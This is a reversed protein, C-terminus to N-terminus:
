WPVPFGKPLDKIKMAKKKCKKSEADCVAKYLKNWKATIHVGAGTPVTSGKFHPNKRLTKHAIYLSTADSGVRVKGICLKADAQPMKRKKSGSGSSSTSQHCRGDKSFAPGILKARVLDQITIKVSPKRKKKQQIKRKPKM